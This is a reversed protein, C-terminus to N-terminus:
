GGPEDPRRLVTRAAGAPRHPVAGGEITAAEPLRGFQQLIWGEAQPGTIGQMQRHREVTTAGLQGAEISAHLLGSSGQAQTRCQCLVGIWARLKVEGDFGLTGLSLLQAHALSIFDLYLGDGSVWATAAGM